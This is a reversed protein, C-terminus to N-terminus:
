LETHPGTHEGANDSILTNPGGIDRTVVNLAEGVQSKSLMPHVNIFGEGDMFINACTNGIIYKNKAFLTNM